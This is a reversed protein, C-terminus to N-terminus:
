GQPANRIMRTLNEVVGALAAKSIVDHEPVRIVTWGEEELQATVRTDRERNASIKGIWFDSTLGAHKRCEPCGHWFCGDVFVVVRKRPFVLDPKGVLRQNRVSKYGDHTFFRLGERWLASALAREPATRGRNNAMARRRQTPTMVDM